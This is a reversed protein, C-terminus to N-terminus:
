KPEKPKIIGKDMFIDNVEMGLLLIVSTLQLWVLLIIVSGVTGYFRSYDTFRNVYFGFLLTAITWLATVFVSGPLACSFCIQRSPVFMNISLFLIFVFVLPLLIRFLNLLDEGPLAPLHEKIKNLIKQGFVIGLLASVIAFSFLVVWIVSLVYKMFAKRKKQSNTVRDAGEMFARFGGSAAYLAFLASYSMFQTRLEKETQTVNEHILRYVEKPLFAESFTMLLTYDLDAMSILSLLFAAFPFFSLLLSYTMRYAYDAINDEKSKQVLLTVFERLTIKKM